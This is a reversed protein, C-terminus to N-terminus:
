RDRGPACGPEADEATGVAYAGSREVRLTIRGHRPTCYLRIGRAEILGLAEAHPHTTGNASILVLDPATADLWFEQMANAAGHHGAKLVTVAVLSDFEAAFRRNAQLQADGTTLFSFRGRDLRAGLSGNNLRRGDDTDTALDDRQPPILTLVTASDGEGLRVRRLEDVVIITAVERELRELLRRYTIATRVQGNFAFARVPVADLIAGLGGYHDHHAHTLVVLDLAPVGLGVLQAATGGDDGADILIHRAPTITSDAILIADGGGSRSTVRLLHLTLPTAGASDEPVAPTAAPQAAAKQGAGGRAPAEHGAGARAPAEGPKDRPPIGAQGACGALIALPALILFLRALHAAHHPKWGSTRRPTRLLELYKM